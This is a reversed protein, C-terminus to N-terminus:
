LTFHDYNTPVKRVYPLKYKFRLLLGNAVIVKIKKDPNYKNGNLFPTSYLPEFEQKIKPEIKFQRFGDVNFQIYKPFLHIKKSNNQEFVNEVFKNEKDCPFYKVIRVKPNKKPKSPSPPSSDLDGNPIYEVINEPVYNYIRRPIIADGLIEYLYQDVYAIKSDYSNSPLKLYTYSANLIAEHLGPRHIKDNENSSMAEILPMHATLGDVLAKRGLATLCEVLPGNLREEVGQSLYELVINRGIHALQPWVTVVSLMIKLMENSLINETLINSVLIPFLRQLQLTVDTDSCCPNVLLCNLIKLAQKRWIEPTVLESLVLLSLNIIYPVIPGIHTNTSLDQLSIKVLQKNNSLLAKSLKLYYNQLNPSILNDGAANKNDIIWSASLSPSPITTLDQHRTAIAVLDIVPDYTTCLHESEVIPVWQPGAPGLVPEIDMLKLVVNIDEVEVKQSKTNRAHLAVNHILQRLKYSVDEALVSCAEESVQEISIQESICQISEPSIGAFKGHTSNERDTPPPTYCDTLPPPHPNSHPPTPTSAPASPAPRRRARVTAVAAAPPAVAVGAGVGAGTLGVGGGGGSAPRTKM